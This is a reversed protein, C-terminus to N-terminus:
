FYAARGEPKVVRWLVEAKDYPIADYTRIVIEKCDSGCPNCVALSTSSDLAKVDHLGLVNNVFNLFDGKKQADNIVLEVIPVYGLVTWYGIPFDNKFEVAATGNPIIQCRGPNLAKKTNDLFHEIGLAEAYQIVLRSWSHLRCYYNGLWDLNLKHCSAIIRAEELFDQQKIPQQLRSEFNAIVIEYPRMAPVRVIKHRRIRPSKEENM